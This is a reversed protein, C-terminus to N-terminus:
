LYDDLRILFLGLKGLGARACVAARQKETFLICLGPLGASRHDPVRAM